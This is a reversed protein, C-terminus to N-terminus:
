AAEGERERRLRRSELDALVTPDRFAKLPEPEPRTQARKAIDEVYERHLEEIKARDAESPTTYIEADLILAIRGREALAEAVALRCEHAIEAPTPAYVRNGLRGDLFRRCIDEIVPEPFPALVMAYGDLPDADGTSSAIAMLGRVTGVARIIAAKRSPALWRDIVEVRATMVQREHETPALRDPLARRRWDSSDELRNTLGRVITDTETDAMPLVHGPTTRTTLAKAM